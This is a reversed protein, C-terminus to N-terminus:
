SQVEEPNRSTFNYLRNAVNRMSYTCYDLNLIMHTLSTREGNQLWRM